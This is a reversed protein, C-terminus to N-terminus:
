SLCNVLRALNIKGRKTPRVIETRMDSTSAVQVWSEIVDAPLDAAPLADLAAVGAIDSGKAGFEFDFAVNRLCPALDAGCLECKTGALRDSESYVRRAPCKGPGSEDGGNSDECHFVEIFPGVVRKEPVLNCSAVTHLGKLEVM